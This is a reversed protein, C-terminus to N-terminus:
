QWKYMNLNEAWSTESMLKTTDVHQGGEVPGIQVPGNLFQGPYFSNQAAITTNESWSQLNEPLAQRQTEQRTKNCESIPELKPLKPSLQHDSNVGSDDITGGDSGKEPTSHMPQQFESKIEPSSVSELKGIDKKTIQRHKARRNKFWVQIRSEAVGIRMALEERVFVDPYKTKGFVAELIELQSRTYTTRERRQKRGSQAFLSAAVAAASESIQQESFPLNPVNPPLVPNNLQTQLQNFNETFNFNQGSTQNFNIYPNLLNNEYFPPSPNLSGLELNPTNSTM